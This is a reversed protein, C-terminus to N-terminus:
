KFMQLTLSVKEKMEKLFAFDENKINDLYKPFNLYNLFYFQINFKKAFDNLFMKWNILFLSDFNNKIIKEIEKHNQYQISNNKIEFLLKQKKQLVLSNNFEFIKIKAIRSINMNEYENIMSDSIIFTNNINENECFFDNKFNNKKNKIDADILIIKFDQKLEILKNTKFNIFESSIKKPFYTIKEIKEKYFNLNFNQSFLIKYARALIEADILANHEKNFKIDLILAIDNLSYTRKKKNVCKLKKSMKNQINIIKIKKANKLSRNNREFVKEIIKQDFDGFSFIKCNKSFKLFNKIVQDEGKYNTNNFFDKEKKLLNSIRTSIKKRYCYQNFKQIKGDEDIKIAGVQLLFSHDSPSDAELDIFVTNKLYNNLEM